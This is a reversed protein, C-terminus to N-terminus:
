KFVSEMSKQIESIIERTKLAMGYKKSAFESAKRTIISATKISDTVDDPEATKTWSLFTALIGALIDGQGGCRKVFIPKFLTMETSALVNQNIDDIEHSRNLIEIKRDNYEIVDVFGKKLVYHINNDKLYKVENYNPTLVINKYKQFFEFNNSYFFIGDGDIIIFINRKMLYELIRCIKECIEKTPRGLGSGFVCVSVRNLIWEHFDIEVIIAEPLLVKLPILTEKECFIYSLDSGSLLSSLSVFYPAGTYLGCGGIVLTIGNNGKVSSESNLPIKRKFQM